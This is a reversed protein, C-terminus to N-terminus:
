TRPRRAILPATFRAELEKLQRRTAIKDGPGMRDIILVGNLHDTEHQWIRALLDEGVFAIPNGALDLADIRCRVARRMQVRVEPISLCGEEDERSGETESIVPNVFALDDKRDETPNMVFLRIPLGVQPAALGVGRDLRMLEFMREAVRTLAEDFTAVPAAPERLRPDPYHIIRLAAPDVASLDISV